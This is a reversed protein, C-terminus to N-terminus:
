HGFANSYPIALFRRPSSRFLTSQCEAAASLQRDWHSLDSLSLGRARPAAGPGARAAGSRGHGTLAPDPGGIIM